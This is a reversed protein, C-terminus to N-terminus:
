TTVELAYNGGDVCGEPRWVINAGKKALKTAEEISIRRVTSGSSTLTEEIGVIPRDAAATERRIVNDECRIEGPLVEALVGAGKSNKIRENTFYDERKMTDLPSWAYVPVDFIKYLVEGLDSVHVSNFKEFSDTMKNYGTVFM